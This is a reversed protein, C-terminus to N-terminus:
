TAASLAAAQRGNMPIVFESKRESILTDLVQLCYPWGKMKGYRDRERITGTMQRAKTEDVAQELVLLFDNRDYGSNIWVHTLALMTREPNNDHFGYERAAVYSRLAPDIEVGNEPRGKPNSKRIPNRGIPGGPPRLRETTGNTHV